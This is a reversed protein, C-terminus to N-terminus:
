KGMKHINESTLVICLVGTHFTLPFHLFFWDPNKESDM